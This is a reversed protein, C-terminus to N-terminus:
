GCGHRAQDPNHHLCRRCSDEIQSHRPGCALNANVPNKDQSDAQYIIKSHHFLAAVGFGTEVVVAGMFGFFSGAAGGLVIEPGKCGQCNHQDRVAVTTTGAIAGVVAGGVLMAKPSPLLPRRLLIIKKVEKRAIEEPVGNDWPYRTAIRLGRADVEVVRGSVPQGKWLIVYVSAGPKLKTASEWDHKSRAWAGTGISTLIVVVAIVQRNM